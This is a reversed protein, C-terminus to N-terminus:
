PNRFFHCQRCLAGEAALAPNIKRCKRRPQLRVREFCLRFRLKEAAQQLRAREFGFSSSKLLSYLPTSNAATVARSFLHRFFHNNLRSRVGAASASVSTAPSIARSFTTGKGTQDNVPTKGCGTSAAGKLVFDLDSNKRQRNSHGCDRASLLYPSIVM